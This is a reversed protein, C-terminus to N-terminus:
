WDNGDAEGINGNDYDAISVGYCNYDSSGQCLRPTDSLTVIKIIPSIYKEM